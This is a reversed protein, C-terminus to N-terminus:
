YNKMLEMMLTLMYFELVDKAVTLRATGSVSFDKNAIQAYGIGLFLTSIFIMTLLALSNKTSFLKKKLNNKKM